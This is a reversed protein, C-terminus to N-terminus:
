ILAFAKGPRDNLVVRNAQETSDVYAVVRGDRSFTIAGTRMGEPITALIESERPTSASKVACGGCLGIFAMIGLSVRLFSM